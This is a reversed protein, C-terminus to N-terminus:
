DSFVVGLIALKKAYSDRRKVAKAATDIAAQMAAPGKKSVVKILGSKHAADVEARRFASILEAHLLLQNM